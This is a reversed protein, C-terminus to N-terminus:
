EYVCIEGTYDHPCSYMRVWLNQPLGLIIEKKIEHQPASVSRDIKLSVGNTKQNMWVILHLLSKEM